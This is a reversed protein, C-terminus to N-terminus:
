RRGFLIAMAGSPVFDVRYVQWVDSGIVVEGTQGFVTGLPFDNADVLFCRQRTELPLTKREEADEYGFLSVPQEVGWTTPTTDTTADYTGVTPSLKVTAAEFASPVLNKATTFGLRVLGKIDLAM